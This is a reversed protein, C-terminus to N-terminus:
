AQINGLNPRAYIEFAVIVGPVLFEPLCHFRVESHFDRHEIRIREDGFVRMRGELMMVAKFPTDGIWVKHSFLRDEFRVPPETGGPLIVQRIGGKRPELWGLAQQGADFVTCLRTRSDGRVTWLRGDDLEVRCDSRHLTGDPLDSPLSLRGSIKPSDDDGPM